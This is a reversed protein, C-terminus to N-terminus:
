TPLPHNAVHETSAYKVSISELYRQLSEAPSEGEEWYAATQFLQARGRRIIYGRGPPFHATRQETPIKANNFQDVESIGNLLVGCGQKRIRQMLPDDYDRPLESANGAVLFAMGLDTGRALCDALARRADDCQAALKEYDDIVVLYFPLSSLWSERHFADPSEQYLSEATRSREQIEASLASVIGDLESTKGIYAHTHPLKRFRLLSRSHFDVLIFRVREPQFRDALGLLWTRLLTTKGSQATSGAVLFTPGDKELLFGVPALNDFDRGLPTFLSDCETATTPLGCLSIHNALALIPEPCRGTWVKKMRLALEDLRATRALDSEGTEPLAAQWEMPPNGKVLGRGPVPPQSAISQLRPDGSGGVLGAYEGQATQHFTVRFNINAFLEAPIDAQGCASFVLHLGSSASGGILSGIAHIFEPPFARRLELFGDLFLFIDPLRSSSETSENYEACGNVGKKRFLESRRIIERHLFHILRDTRERELHTIVAGVHPFEALPRLASQGAYDLIYIHAEDPTRLRAVAATLTRFFMTKGSGAAGFVLLHGGAPLELIPQEQRDPLDCLGIIPEARIDASGRSAAKRSPQWASGDWGGLIERDMLDPLYLREPLPDKWVPPPKQLNLAQMARHIRDILAQAETPVLSEVQREEESNGSAHRITERRGDRGIRIWLGPMPTEGCKPRGGTYAIQVLALGQSYFLARGRPLQIADPVGVMQLSDEPQSVKLCIRFTSNQLIQPDVAAQINQTALILHIGLSRGLRAISILRKSEEPHRSKFEAFEDFVVVLHPLPRRVSLARYEDVHSQGFRFIARAEELIRKRREMEGGLAALIREAYSAHSEIDTVLGVTHPLAALENFAAGGKYDILAFNLDYPHHTVAFGLIIAKLVESKGSGTMGGILGHPGHSGDRDRLDFLFNAAASTKGIPARLFGFPSGEDWWTEVPLGGAESAGLIELMGVAAPPQSLDQSAPWDIGALGGSLREATALGCDDAQFVSSTPDNGPQMLSAQKGRITLIAGCEGPIRDNSGTLFIGYVGLPRGSRLLLNLGPHPFGEAPLDLVIVLAPFLRATEGMAGLVPRQVALIQERRQLERELIDALQSLRQNASKEPLLRVVFARDAHPLIRMWEWEPSEAAGALAAVQVETPWHHTVLHCLLTRALNLIDRRHGAIGISGKHFLPITIPADPIRLFEEAMGDAWGYYEQFEQPRQSQSPKTVRFSPQRAGIGARPCLFDADGPRREGLRTDRREVRRLCDALDPNCDLRIQRERERLSQLRNEARQLSECYSSKAETLRSLYLRKQSRFNLWSVLVGAAMTPLMMLYGPGGAGGGATMMMGVVLLSGGLPLLTALWGFAGPPAPLGPAPPIEVNEDPLPTQIRPPRNFPM